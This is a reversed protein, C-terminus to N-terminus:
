KREDRQKMGARPVAEVSQSWRESGVARLRLLKSHNSAREQFGVELSRGEDETYSQWLRDTWLRVEKRHAQPVSEIKWRARGAKMLKFVNKETILIDTVWSFTTINGHKDIQMYELVNVLLDPNSKNLSVQNAFRFHHGKKRDKPDISVVESAMGAAVAERLETFLAVHDGPKVGLIFRLNHEQLDRIHPGNSSLGDEVVIVKLHPHERRFSEFYRKAANRECDNKTSGDQQTIIEPFTPIVVKCDPSVFSAAYMQQYYLIVGNTCKKKMCFPSAVKTSSYYGTGDGSLLYHGDYYAMKQFDKGRQVERFVTCFAARLFVLELSDLITRMQSDCPITEIGFV